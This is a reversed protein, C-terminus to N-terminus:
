LGERLEEEAEELPNGTGSYVFPLEGRGSMAAGAPTVTYEAVGVLDTLSLISTVEYTVSIEESEGAIAAGLLSHYVKIPTVIKKIT